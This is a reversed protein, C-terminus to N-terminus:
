GGDPRHARRAGPLLSAALLAALAAAGHVALALRHASFAAAGGDDASRLVAGLAAMGAMAGVYWITSLAGSAM